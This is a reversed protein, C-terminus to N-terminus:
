ARPANSSCGAPGVHLLVDQARVWRHVLVRNWDGERAHEHDDGNSQRGQNPEVGTWSGGRNLSPAGHLHSHDGRNGGDDREELKRSHKGRAAPLDEEEAGRTILNVGEPCEQLEDEAEDSLDGVFDHVDQHLAMGRLDPAYGRQSAAELRARRRTVEAMGVEEHDPQKHPLEDEDQRRNRGQLHALRQRFIDVQNERAQLGGRQHEGHEPEERQEFGGMVTEPVEAQM